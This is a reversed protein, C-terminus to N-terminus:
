FSGLNRGGNMRLIETNLRRTLYNGLQGAMAKLKESVPTYYFVGYVKSRDRASVTFKAVKDGLKFTQDLSRGLDPIKWGRKKKESVHDWAELYERMRQEIGCRLEFAAYFLAEPTGEDLQVRARNLYDRAGTRYSM